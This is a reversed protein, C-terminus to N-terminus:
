AVLNKVKVRGTRKEMGSHPSHALLQMPNPQQSPNFLSLPLSKNRSYRKQTDTEKPLNKNGTECSNKAISVEKSDM